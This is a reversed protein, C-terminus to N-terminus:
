RQVAVVVDPNSRNGAIAANEDRVVDVHTADACGVTLIPTAGSM